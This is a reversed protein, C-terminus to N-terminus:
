PASKPAQAEDFTKRVREGLHRWRGPTEDPEQYRAVENPRLELVLVSGDRQLRRPDFDTVEFETMPNNLQSFKLVLPKKGWGSLTFVEDQDSEIRASGVRSSGTSLTLGTIPYEGRNIVRVTAIPPKLANLAVEAVVLLLVVGLLVWKWRSRTM